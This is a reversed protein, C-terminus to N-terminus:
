DSSCCQSLWKQEENGALRQLSFGNILFNSVYAARIGINDPTWDDGEAGTKIVSSNIVM